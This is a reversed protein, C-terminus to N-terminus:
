PRLIGGSTVLVWVDGDRRVEQAVASVGPLTQGLEVRHIEGDETEVLVARRSVSRLRLGSLGVQAAQAPVPMAAQTPAPPPTPATARPSAAATEQPAPRTEQSAPRPPASPAVAATESPPTRPESPPSAGADPSSEPRRPRPPQGASEPPTLGRNHFTLAVQTGLMAHRVNVGEAVRIEMMGPMTAISEINRTQAPLGLLSPLEGGLFRVRVEDGSQDVDYVPEAAFALTLRTFGNFNAFRVPVQTAPPRRQEQAPPTASASAPQAPQAVPAAPASAQPAAARAAAEQAANAVMVRQMASRLREIEAEREDIEARLDAIGALLAQNGQRQRSM